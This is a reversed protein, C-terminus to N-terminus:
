NLSFRIGQVEYPEEDGWRTEQRTITCLGTMTCGQAAFAHLNEMVATSQNTYVFTGIGASRLTSIFDAVEKDWLFDDMELEDEKRSISSAWARYAKCAGQEFPFKAAADEEYWAKLEPSDWGLTDIIHQKRAQREARAAEYEHGLRKLNVFYANNKNLM